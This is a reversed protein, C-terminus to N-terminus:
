RSQVRTSHLFRLKWAGDRWDLVASELWIRPQTGNKDTVSGRNVYAVWAMDCAVHVDPDNVTWVYTQGKARMMDVIGSLEPGSLRKGGDFAYFDPEFEKLMAAKDSNMAAAFMRRLTEAPDPAAQPACAAAAEALGAAALLTGVFLRSKVSM